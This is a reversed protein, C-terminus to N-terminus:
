QMNRTLVWFSTVIVVPKEAGDRKITWDAELTAAFGWWGARPMAYHFVGNADAHVKQVLYPAAPAAVPSPSDPTPGLWAVEVVVYPAPDGNLLVQGSFLNGAWLGYPRSLPVIEAELGVPEDWGEELGLANVCLKAQHIVFQEEAAEWRPAAEAHFTYDGPRKIAVEARWASTGPEQAPTLSVLPEAPEDIRQVGFRQPKALELFRRGLPDYLRVQLGLASSEGLSVIDDSPLLLGFAAPAASPFAFLLLVPLIARRM